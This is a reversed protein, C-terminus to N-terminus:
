GRSYLTEMATRLTLADFGRDIEIILDDFVRIRIGSESPKNDSPILHIFRPTLAKDGTNQFKKRWRYFQSIKIDRERCFVSAESGSATQEDIIQKWYARHEERTM